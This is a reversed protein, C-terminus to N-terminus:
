QFLAILAKHIILATVLLRPPLCAAALLVIAHFRSRCLRILLAQGALVAWYILM